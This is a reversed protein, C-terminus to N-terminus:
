KSGKRTLNDGAKIDVFALEGCKKLAGVSVYPVGGKISVKLPETIIELEEGNIGSYFLGIM